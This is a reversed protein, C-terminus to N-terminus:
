ILVDGRRSSNLTLHSDLRNEETNVTFMEGAGECDETTLVPTTVKVFGNRRYFDHFAFEASSRLLLMNRFYPIRSQLHASKRIQDLSMKSPNLLPYSRDCSAILPISDAVLEVQQEIRHSRVLQGDISLVDGSQISEDLINTPIVVQFNM